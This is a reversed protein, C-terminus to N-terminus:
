RGASHPAFETNGLRAVLSPHVIMNAPRAHRLTHAREEEASAPLLEDGLLPASALDLAKTLLALAAAPAARIRRDVRESSIM